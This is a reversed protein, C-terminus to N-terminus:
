HCVLWLINPARIVGHRCKSCPFHHLLAKKAWFASFTFFVFVKLLIHFDRFPSKVSDLLRELLHCLVLCSLQASDLLYHYSTCIVQSADDRWRSALLRSSTMSTGANCYNGSPLSRKTPRRPFILPFCGSVSKTTCVTRTHRLM